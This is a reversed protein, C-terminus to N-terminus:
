LRYLEPRRDKFADNRETITKDNAELPNIEATAIGEKNVPLNALLEGKTNLVQSAGTFSITVGANTETGIRNSTITFVRNELSRIKMAAQCWPLVLNTPHCIIQAGSLALTRAAEPFQWDFCIMMGIKVGAPTTFVQFGTDGPSFFLKERNFLHTKRYNDYDGDPMILMSSNYLKDGDVEPYGYVISCNNKTAINSLALFAEGKGSVEAISYVEEKTSFVYGSTCLEPMVVLDTKLSSLLDTIRMLNYAKDLLRPEFQLVSVKM